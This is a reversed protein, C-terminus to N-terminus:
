CLCFSLVLPKSMLIRGTADRMKNMMVMELSWRLELIHVRRQGEGRGSRLFSARPIREGGRLAIIGGRSSPPQFPAGRTSQSKSKDESQNYLNDM